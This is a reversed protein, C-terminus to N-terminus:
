KSASWDETASSSYYLFGSVAKIVNINGLGVEQNLLERLATEKIGCLDTAYKLIVKQTAAEARTKPISERIQTYTYKQPRGAKGQDPEKEQLEDMEWYYVPKEKGNVPMRETSHKIAIRTAPELRTGAVQEIEKTIGANLGGKGLKILYRGQQGPIPELLATCRPWNAFYSSGFGMYASEWDDLEARKGDKGKAPKGTHHILIYAFKEAKNVRDLGVLFPQAFESRSIDGDAYLYVPNIIVLDPTHEAVLKELETFFRDGSVGKLRVIICNKTLLSLEDATLKNVHAFSAFIKGIYRDSDEAQIILSKLAGNCKIGMWVKGIAWMMCADMIWSSKGAGAHSVFLFGGGRGLYDDNGLLTNPDDEAPYAYSTIPRVVGRPTPAPGIFGESEVKQLQEKLRKIERAKRARAEMAMIHFRARSTTGIKLPDSLDMLFQIGGAEELRGNLQPVLTDLALPAQSSELEKLAAYIVQHRRDKFDHPALGAEMAFDFSAGDDLLCCALIYSEPDTTLEFEPVRPIAVPKATEFSEAALEAPEEDWDNMATM